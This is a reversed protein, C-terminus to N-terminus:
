TLGSAGKHARRNNVILNGDFYIKMTKDEPSGEIVRWPTRVFYGRKHVAFGIHASNLCFRYGSPCYRDPFLESGEFKVGVFGAKVSESDKTTYQQQAMLMSKLSNFLTYTTVILDPEPREVGYYCDTKHNRILDLSEAGSVAELMGEWPKEGDQAEMENETVGAYEVDASENCCHRLGTLRNGDGGSADYISDALVKTVTKQAGITEEVTLDVISEPGANNELQDIRLVTGNGYAHKWDFYVATIADRKDSSLTDGRGYFGGENGDYRLPVRIQPGGGPRKWLGKKQKLLYNLLFSTQFYVDLAKKGDALMFYDNTVSDMQATLSM